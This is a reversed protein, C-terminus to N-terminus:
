VDARERYALHAAYDWIALADAEDDVAFHWGRELIARQVGTKGRGGYGCIHLKVSSPQAERIWTIGTEHALMQTIGALGVLKRVTDLSTKQPLIPAEFILGAPKHEDLMGDLWDAYASLFPGVPTNPPAVRHFGSHPQPPKTAAAELQTIPLAPLRGVAYGLVTALDLSLVGGSSM